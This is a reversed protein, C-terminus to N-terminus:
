TGPGVTLSCRGDECSRRLRGRSITQTLGVAWCTPCGRLALLGLPLLALSVLGVVPILAVSAVLSAFGVVGRAIHEPLSKSAFDPGGPATGARPGTESM